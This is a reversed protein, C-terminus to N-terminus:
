DGIGSYRKKFESDQMRTQILDIPSVVYCAIGGSLVGATIKKLIPTQLMEGENKCMSNRIPEYLSLKIGSFM